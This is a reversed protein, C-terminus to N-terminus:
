PCSAQSLKIVTHTPWGHPNANNKPDIYWVNDPPCVVTFPSDGCDGQV